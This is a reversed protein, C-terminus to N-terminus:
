NMTPTKGEIAGHQTTHAFKAGVVNRARQQWTNRMRQWRGRPPMPPMMPPQNYTNQNNVILNNEKSGGRRTERRM